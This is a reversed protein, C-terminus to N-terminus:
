GQKAKSDGNPPASSELAQVRQELNRLKQRLAPLRSLMGYAKLAIRHPMAPTGSVVQDGGM